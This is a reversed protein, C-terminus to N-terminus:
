PGFEIYDCGAYSASPQWNYRTESQDMASCQASGMWNASPNTIVRKQVYNWLMPSQPEQEMSAVTIAGCPGDPGDNSTWTNSQQVRRFRMSFQHSVVRCTRSDRDFTIAAMRGAADANQNQCYAAFVDSLSLLDKKETDSMARLKTQFDPKASAMSPNRVANGLEAFRSCEAATPPKETKVAAVAAAVEQRLNRSGTKKRVATQIMDCKLIAAGELSCNYQISSMEKTNFALGITPREQGFAASTALLLLLAAFRSITKM